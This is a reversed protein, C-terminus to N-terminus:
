LWLNGETTHCFTHHYRDSLAPDCSLHKSQVCAHPAKGEAFLTYGSLVGRLYVNQGFVFCSAAAIHPTLQWTTNLQGYCRSEWEGGAEGDAWSFAYCCPSEITRNSVTASDVGVGDDSSVDGTRTCGAQMAECKSQCEQWTQTKGLFRHADALLTM